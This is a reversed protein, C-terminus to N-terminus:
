EDASDTSSTSTSRSQFEQELDQFTFGLNANDLNRKSDEGWENMESKIDNILKEDQPDIEDYLFVTM